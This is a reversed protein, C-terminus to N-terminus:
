YRRVAQGFYYFQAQQAARTAALGREAHIRELLTKYYAPVWQDPIQKFEVAAMPNLRELEFVGSTYGQWVPVAVVAAPLRREAIWSGVTGPPYFVPFGGAELSATLALLWLLRAM